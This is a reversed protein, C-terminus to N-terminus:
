GYADEGMLHEVIEDAQLLAIDDPVNQGNTIYSLPLAYEVLVNLVSGYSATEDMKTWLIKDIKFHRFNDIIAKIDEYKSVLSLVLYTESRGHEGLLGNLATVSSEDRYNRGATDMFILNRDELKGLATALEDASFVVEVPVNLITAYTRLQDIAAIRYTDSTIFGVQRNFKLVQEAALKAITTTKGVGTPGVFQIVRSDEAIGTAPHAQFIRYLEEKLLQRAEDVGLEALTKGSNALARQKLEEVVSPLVGQALLRDATRHFPDNTAALSEDRPKVGSTLQTVLTKMEKIEQLLERPDLTDSDSISSETAAAAQRAQRGVAADQITQAAARKFREVAQDIAPPEQMGAAEVPAQVATARSAEDRRSQVQPPTEKVEDATSRHSNRYARAAVISGVAPGPHHEAISSGSGAASSPSGGTATPSNVATATSTLNRETAAIAAVARQQTNESAASATDVAAIVEIKKKRFLGLIGGVHLQKTNLIVADKGLEQRIQNLAEPLTDVIYRKVRM